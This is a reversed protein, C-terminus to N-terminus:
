DHLMGKERSYNLFREIKDQKPKIGAQNILGVGLHKELLAISAYLDTIEGRLREENNGKESPGVEELGFRIAKSCRQAVESCEEAVQNLYAQTLNM